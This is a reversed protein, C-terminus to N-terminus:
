RNELTGGKLIATKYIELLAFLLSIVLPGLIFGIPGFFSLGGIVSLLILFQHIHVGGGVLKPGLFNDILGVAVVGWIFLGIAPGFNGTVLLYIIGPVLVLSTGIGPILAAFVAFTGWLAPNPVGFIAFGIGTLTGQVVGVVLSGKIVSNVARQLKAFIQEDYVDQLPSYKIINRKLVTGDRLMYFLALVLIFINFIIKALGSFVSDINTFSWRLAQEAYQNLDIDSVSTVSSGEPLFRSAASQVVRDVADLVGIRGGEVTLQNYLSKAEMSIQAGIFMLPTLVLIVIIFLTFLAGLSSRENGKAVKAVIRRYLPRFLVAFVAAIILPSLYPLFIFFTLIGVGLLLAIFFHHQLKSSEMFTNNSVKLIASFM